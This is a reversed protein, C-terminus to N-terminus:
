DCPVKEWESTRVSFLLLMFAPKIQPSNCALERKEEVAFHEKWACRSNVKKRSPLFFFFSWSPSCLSFLNSASLSCHPVMHRPPSRHFPSGKIITLLTNMWNFTGNDNARDHRRVRNNNTSCIWSAESKISGVGVTSRLEFIATQNRCRLDLRNQKNLCQFYPIKIWIPNNVGQQLAECSIAGVVEHHIGLVQFRKAPCGVCLDARKSRLAYISLMNRCHDSARNAWVTASRGVSRYDCVLSSINKLKICALQFM